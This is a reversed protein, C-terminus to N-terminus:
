QTTSESNNDASYLLLTIHKIGYFKWLDEGCAKMSTHTRVNASYKIFQSDFSYHSSESM